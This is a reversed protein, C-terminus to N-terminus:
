SKKEDTTSATQKQEYTAVGKLLGLGAALTSEKRAAAGARRDQNAKSEYGRATLETNFKDIAIDLYGKSLTDTMVDIPSGQNVNIGSAAYQATQRGVQAELNKKKQYETLAGSERVVAANQDALAANYNQTSQIQKGGQYEGYASVGTGFLNMAALTNAPLQFM